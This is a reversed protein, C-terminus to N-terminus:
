ENICVELPFYWKTWLKPPFNKKKFHFIENSFDAIAKKTVNICVEISNHWKTWYKRKTPHWKTFGWTLKISTVWSKKIYLGHYLGLDVVRFGYYTGLSSSIQMLCCAFLSLFILVEFCNKKKKWDMYHLYFYWFYLHWSSM